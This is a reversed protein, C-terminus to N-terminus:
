YQFISLFFDVCVHNTARFRVMVLYGGAVVIPCHRRELQKRYNEITAIYGNYEKTMEEGLNKEFQRMKLIDLLSTYLDAVIKRVEADRELIRRM